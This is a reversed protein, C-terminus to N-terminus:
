LRTGGPPQCGKNDVGAWICFCNLRAEDSQQQATQVALCRVKACQIVAPLRPCKLSGGQAVSGHLLQALSRM